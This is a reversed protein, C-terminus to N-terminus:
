SLHQKYLQLIFTNWPQSLPLMFVSIMKSVTKEERTQGQKMFRTDGTVGWPQTQKQQSMFCSEAWQCVWQLGSYRVVAQYWCANWMLVISCIFFVQNGIPTFSFTPNCWCCIWGEVRHRSPCAVLEMHGWVPTLLNYFTVCSLGTSIRGPAQPLTMASIKGALRGAPTGPFGTASTTFLFNPRTCQYSWKTQLSLYSRTSYFPSLLHYILEPVFAFGFSDNWYFCWTLLRPWIPVTWYPELQTRIM